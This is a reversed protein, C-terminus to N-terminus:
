KGAVCPVCPSMRAPRTSYRAESLVADDQVEPIEESYARFHDNSYPSNFCEPLIVLQAGQVRHNIGMDDLDM